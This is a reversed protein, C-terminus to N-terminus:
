RRSSLPATRRPGQRRRTRIAQRRWSAGTPRVSTSDSRPWRPSAPTSAPIRNAVAANSRAARAAAWSALIARNRTVSPRVANSVLPQPGGTVVGGPEGGVAGLGDGAVDQPLRTVLEQLAALPVRDHLLQPRLRDVRTLRRAGLSLPPLM